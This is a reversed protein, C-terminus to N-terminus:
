PNIKSSTTITVKRIRDVAISGTITGGGLQNGIILRNARVINIGGTVKGGNAVKMASGSNVNIGGVVNGGTRAVFSGQNDITIDGVVGGNDEVILNGNNINIGGTVKGGQKVKLTEGPNVTLPGNVSTTIETTTPVYAALNTATPHADAYDIDYTVAAGEMLHLNPFNPDVFPYVQQSQDEKVEGKTGDNPDLSFIVGLAM